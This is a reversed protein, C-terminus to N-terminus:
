IRTLVHSMVAVYVMKLALRSQCQANRTARGRKETRECPNKRSLNQSMTRLPDSNLSPVGREDLFSPGGGGGREDSAKYLLFIV